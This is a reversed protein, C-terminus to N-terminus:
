TISGPWPRFGAKQLVHLVEHVGLLMMLLLNVQLAYKGLNVMLIAYIAILM